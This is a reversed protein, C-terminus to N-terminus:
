SGGDTTADPAPTRTIFGGPGRTPIPTAPALTPQPTISATAVPMPTVPVGFPHNVRARGDLAVRTDEFYDYVVPDFVANPAVEALQTKLYTVIDRRAVVTVIVSLYPPILRPLEFDSVVIPRFQEWYLRAADFFWEAGLSPAIYLFHFNPINHQAM